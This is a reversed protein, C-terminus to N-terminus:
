LMNTTVRVHTHQDSNSLLSICPNTQWGNVQSENGNIVSAPVGCMMSIINLMIFLAILASNKECTKTM